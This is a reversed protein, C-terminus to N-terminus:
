LYYKYEVVIGNIESGKKDFAYTGDSKLYVVYICGDMVAAKKALESVRELEGQRKRNDCSCSM